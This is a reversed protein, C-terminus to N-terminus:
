CVSNKLKYMTAVGDATCSILMNDGLTILTHVTAEGDDLTQVCEGTQLDWVCVQGSKLGSAAFKGQLACVATVQAEVVWLCESSALRWFRLTGDHSGSVLFADSVFALASVSKAHGVLKALVIGHLDWVWIAGDQDGSVLWGGPSAALASVQSSHIDVTMHRTNRALSWVHINEGQALVMGGAIALMVDHPEAVFTKRKKTELNYIHVHGDNFGIQFEGHSTSSLGTVAGHGKISRSSEINFSDLTINFVYIKRNSTTFVVRTDSLATMAHIGMQFVEHPEELVPGGISMNEFDLDLSM